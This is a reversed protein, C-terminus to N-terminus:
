KTNQVSKIRYLKVGAPLKCEITMQSKFGLICAGLPSTISIKNESLLAKGPLTLTIKFINRNKLDELEVISNIKVVDQLIDENEVITASDLLKKLPISYRPNDITNLRQLIELEAKLITPKM